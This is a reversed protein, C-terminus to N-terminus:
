GVEKKLAQDPGDGNEIPMRALIYMTSNSEMIETWSYVWDNYVRGLAVDFITM